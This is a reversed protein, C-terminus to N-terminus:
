YDHEHCPAHFHNFPIEDSDGTVRREKLFNFITSSDTFYFVSANLHFFLDMWFNEVGHNFAGTSRGKLRLAGLFLDMHLDTRTTMREERSLLFKQIGGSSNLPKLLFITFRFL